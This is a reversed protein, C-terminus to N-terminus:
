GQWPPGQHSDNISDGRGDGDSLITEEGPPLQGNRRMNRIKDKCDVQSRQHLLPQDAQEDAAKIRSWNNGYVHYLEVLRVVEHDAWKSRKRAWGGVCSHEVAAGHGGVAKPPSLRLRDGLPRKWMSYGSTGAAQRSIWGPAPREQQQGAGGRGAGQQQLGGEQGMEEDDSWQVTERKREKRRQVLGPGAAAAEGPGGAQTVQQRWAESSGAAGRPQGGEYVLTLPAEAAGAGDPQLGAPQTLGTARGGVAVGRAAAPAAADGAVECSHRDTSDQFAHQASHDAMSRRGQVPSTLIQVRTELRLPQSHRYKHPSARPSPSFGDAAAKPGEPSPICPGAAEATARVEAMLSAPVCLLVADGNDITSHSFPVVNRAAAAPQHQSSAPAPQQSTSAAPQHQSSAPAPQQSTSRSYHVESGVRDIVKSILVRRTGKVMMMMGMVQMTSYALTVEDSQVAPRYYMATTLPLDALQEVRAKSTTASPSSPLLPWLSEAQSRVKDPTASISDHLHVLFVSAGRMDALYEAWAERLAGRLDDLRVISEQPLTQVSSLDKQWRISDVCQMAEELHQLTAHSFDQEPEGQTKKQLWAHYDEGLCSVLCALVLASYVETLTADDDEHVWMQQQLPDRLSNLKAAQEENMGMDGPACYGSRSRLQLLSVLLQPRAEGVDCSALITRVIHRVPLAQVHPLSQLHTKYRLEAGLKQLEAVALRVNYATSRDSVLRELEDLKRILTADRMEHACPNVM